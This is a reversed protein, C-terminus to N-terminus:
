VEVAKQAIIPGGDLEEDVVHVTCGSIKVGYALAQAQADLGKFAPLLSPHINLIRRPFRQILWPTVLRMFGALIVLDCAHHDLLAAAEREFAQRDKSNYPIFWVPIGRQRAIKLAPAHERDSIQHPSERMESKDPPLDYFTDKMMPYGMAEDVTGYRGMYELTRTLTESFRERWNCLHNEKLWVAQTTARLEKAVMPIAFREIYDYGLRSAVAAGVQDAGAGVQGGITIVAM